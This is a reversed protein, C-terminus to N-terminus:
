APQEAATTTARTLEITASTGGECQIDITGDSRDVIWKVLWLGLGSGHELASESEADLVKLEHDPIGPGADAVTVCVTDGTATVRVEVTAPPDDTHECANELLNEIAIQLSQHAQVACDQDITVDIAADPYQDDVSSVADDVARSASLSQRTASSDIISELERAKESLELVDETCEELTEAIEDNEGAARDALLQANGKIVNLDNRINHRLVRAFVQKLFNREKERLRRETIDRVVVLRGVTTSGGTRAYAREQEIPTINLDYYRTEGDVQLSLEEQTDVADEFREILAPYAGFVDQAHSGVMEGEFDLLETAAANADIVAGDRDLAIVAEDMHEMLTQRAVPVTELLDANFFAWLLVVSGLAIGLVGVNFAQHVPASNEIVFFIFPISIGAIVASTQKRHTEQAAFEFLLFGLGVAVLLFSPILHVLYYAVTPDVLYLGESTIDVALLQGHWINTFIALSDFLFFGSLVAFVDSQQFRKRDSYEVATYFVGIAILAGTPYRALAFFETVTANEVVSSLGNTVAYAFGSGTLVFMPLASPRERHNWALVAVVGAIVGCLLELLSISLILHRM